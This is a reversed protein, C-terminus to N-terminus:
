YRQWEEKLRKGSRNPLDNKEFKHDQNSRKEEHLPRNNIMNKSSLWHVVWVSILLAIIIFLLRTWHYMRCIKNYQEIKVSKKLFGYKGDKGSATIAIVRYSPLPFVYAKNNDPATFTTWTVWLDGYYLNQWPCEKINSRSLVTWWPAGSTKISM